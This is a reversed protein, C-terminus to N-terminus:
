WRQTIRYFIHVTSQLSHRPVSLHSPHIELPTHLPASLHSPHIELTAAPDSPAGKLQQHKPIQRSQLLSHRTHVRSIKDCQERGRERGADMWGKRKGESEYVMKSERDGIRENARDRGRGSGGGARERMRSRGWWKDREAREGGVGREREGARGRQRETERKGARKGERGGKEVVRVRM